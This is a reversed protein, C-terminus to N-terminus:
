STKIVEEVERNKNRKALDLPTFENEDKKKMLEKGEPLSVLYSVVHKLRNGREKAALHLVTRGQSDTDFVAKPLESYFMKLIEVQGGLCATHIPYSNDQNRNNRLTEPFKELIYGVTEVFGNFAAYSLPTLGEEIDPSKILAPQHKLITQLMGQDQDKIAAHVISKGRRLNELINDNRSNNRLERFMSEVLDLDKPRHVVALYLPSVNLNNLAYSAQPYETVLYVAVEKHGNQVALHLPLNRESDERWLLERKRHVVKRAETISGRTAATHLEMDIIDARTRNDHQTNNTRRRHSQSDMLIDTTIPYVLINTFTVRPILTSGAPSTKEFPQDHGHLIIKSLPLGVLEMIKEKAKEIEKEKLTKPHNQDAM